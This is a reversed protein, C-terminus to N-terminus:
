ETYYIGPIWSKKIKLTKDLDTPLELLFEFEHTGITFIDSAQLQAQAVRKGKMILGNTSEQDTLIYESGSQEIKAHVGSVTPDDVKIACEPARGILASNGLEYITATTGNVLHRLYAM